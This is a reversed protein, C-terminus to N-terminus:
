TTKQAKINALWQAFTKPTLTMGRVIIDCDDLPPKPKAFKSQPWGEYVIGAPILLEDQTVYMAGGSIGSFFYGHPRELRSYMEMTLQDRSIDGRKQAAIFLLPTALKDELDINLNYKHEDAYGAAVLMEARAWRPERWNDLDIAQKDAYKRLIDWYSGTIEAIALDVTPGGAADPVPTIGMQLGTGTFFSLNMVSRGVMLSLTPFRSQGAERRKEVIELVHRCTVVYFKEEYKVFTGTANKTNEDHGTAFLFHDHMFLPATNRKAEKNWRAQREDDTEAM